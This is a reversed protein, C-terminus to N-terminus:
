QSHIWVFMFCRWCHLCKTFRFLFDCLRIHLWIQSFFLLLAITRLRVIAASVIVQSQSFFVWILLDLHPADLWKDGQLSLCVTLVTRSFSYIRFSALLETLSLYIVEWKKLLWQFTCRMLSLHFFCVIHVISKLLDILWTLLSDLISSFPPLSTIRSSDPLILSLM